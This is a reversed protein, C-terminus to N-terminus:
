LSCDSRLKLTQNEPPFVAWHQQIMLHGLPLKSDFNEPLIKSSTHCSAQPKLDSYLAVPMYCVCLLKYSHGERQPALTNRVTAPQSPPPSALKRVSWDSFTSKALHLQARGYLFDKFLDVSLHEGPILGLQLPSSGKPGGPLIWPACWLMQRLCHSQLAAPVQVWDGPEESFVRGEGCKGGPRKSRPQKMGSEINWLEESNKRPVARGWGAPFFHKRSYQRLRETYISLHGAARPLALYCRCRSSFFRFNFEMVWRLLVVSVSFTWLLAIFFFQTM